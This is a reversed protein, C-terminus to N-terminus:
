IEHMGVQFEGFLEKVNWSVTFFTGWGNKNWNVFLIVLAM